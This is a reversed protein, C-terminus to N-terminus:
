NERSNESTTRKYIDRRERQKKKREKGCERMGRERNAERVSVRKTKSERLGGREREGKEGIEREM